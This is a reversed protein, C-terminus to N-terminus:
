AEEAVPLLIKFECGQGKESTISIRGKHAHIIDRCLALGLGIGRVKGNMELSARYFKRFVKNLEHKEIGVGYDRVSIQIWAKGRKQIEKVGLDIRVVGDSYKEANGLLNQMVKLLAHEDADVDPVDGDIDLSVEARGQTRDNFSEVASRVLRDVAVPAFTYVAAGHEQKMFFLVREVMDALNDCETSITGLFKKQKETEPVNGMIIGDSLIKISSIPTRLDHSVGMMFDSRERARRVEMAAEWLVVGVGAMVALALLIVGWRFLSARVLAGAQAGETTEPVAILEIADFPKDLRLAALIKHENDVNSYTEGNRPTSGFSDSIRVENKPDKLGRTVISFGEGSIAGSERHILNLLEEQKVKFGAYLGKRDRLLSFCFSHGAHSFRIMGTLSEATSIESRLISILNGLETNPVPLSAGDQPFLFGWPNMFLYLEDAAPIESALKQAAANLAEAEPEARKGFEMKSGRSLSDSFVNRVRDLNSELHSYVQQNILEISNKASAALSRNLEDEWNSLARSAMFTLIATPLVVLLSLIIILRLRMRLRLITRRIHSSM